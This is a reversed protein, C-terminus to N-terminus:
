WVPPKSIIGVSDQLTPPFQSAKLIKNSIPRYLDAVQALESVHIAAYPHRIGIQLNLEQKVLKIPEVLDADNSIVVAIEYDQKYGDVILYSALNVDTGKEETKEVLVRDSFGKIPYTLPMKRSQTQFYGEHISLNPITRLARLYTAQRKMSETVKKNYEPSSNPLTQIRATFYRIRNITHGQVIFSCLKSFDLWKYPTKKVCGYYFNFGDVYVNARIECRWIFCLAVRLHGPARDVFRCPFNLLFICLESVNTLVRAVMFSLSM